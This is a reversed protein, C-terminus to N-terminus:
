SFGSFGHFVFDATEGKFFASTFKFSKLRPKKLTSDGAFVNKYM